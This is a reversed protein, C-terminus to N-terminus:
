SKIKVMYRITSQASNYVIFENKLLSVGRQAYVSDYKTDINRLRDADLEMHWAEHKNVVLQEGVHVEYIALYAEKQSGRAWTSGHLSTYNLSKSFQDAFYIGYGFMKGTIVANAPRLVLGTKLISLWNESRSGHWLLQTKQNAQGSVYTDFANQTHAQRVSFAADFKDADTGMMLKILKLMREDTVAEMTLNLSDLLSVQEPKDDTQKLEVQGRMVDLTDQEGALRDQLTQVEDASQPLQAVLHDNVKTMRRPIIKFLELLKQNYTQIDLGGGVLAALEDLLRQATEVQKRTVQQASVVYNQRISQNALDLLRSMIGRVAPDNISSADTAATTEAFLHTQDVYGKAVKERIKKDWHSMPYTATASSGGVRGYQVTFTDGDNERMEYFKNNNQATVMILKAVRRPKPPVPTPQVSPQAATSKVSTAARAAPKIQQLASGPNAWDIIPQLLSSLM